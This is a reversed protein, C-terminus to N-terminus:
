RRQEEGVVELAVNSTLSSRRLVYTALAEGRAMLREAEASTMDLSMGGETPALWVQFTDERHPPRLLTTRTAAERLAVVLAWVYDRFSSIQAPREHTTLGEAVTTVRDPRESRLTALDFALVARTRDRGGFVELPFNQAVGGDVMLLRDGTATLLPVAELLGPCAISMRVAAIVPLREPPGLAAVATEGPQALAKVVAAPFLHSWDMSNFAVATNFTPLIELRAHSLDTAIIRLDVDRAALDGFTLPEHRGTDGFAIQQLASHVWDTVGPPDGANALGSCLGFNARPLATSLVQVLDAILWTMAGFLAGLVLGPAAISPTARSPAYLAAMALMGTVAGLTLPRWFCLAASALRARGTGPALHVLAAMLARFRPGAHFFGPLAVPLVECQAELREFGEPDGGQRAYEAAAVFAAAIAGASSGTIASFRYRESLRRFARAYVLGSTVGGKLVVDCAELPKSSM